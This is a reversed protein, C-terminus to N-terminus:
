VWFPIRSSKARYGWAALGSSVILTLVAVIWSKSAPASGLLPSRVLDLFYAIPNVVLVWSDPHVLRPFWTIPTVFFLVQILSQTTPAVDRFRAGIISLLVGIAILNLLVLLFGPLALLVVVGPQIKFYVYIGVIILANHAFTLTNRAIARFLIIFPNIRIDRIYSANDVYLNPFEGLSSAIFGWVVFGVSLFPLYESVEAKFLQSYVAGLALCFITMSITIWLPGIKSRRYRLKIDQWALFMWLDYAKLASLLDGDRNLQNSNLYRV